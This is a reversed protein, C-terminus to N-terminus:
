VACQHDNPSNGDGCGVDLITKVDAPIIDLIVNIKQIINKEYKLKGGRERWHNNYFENNDM